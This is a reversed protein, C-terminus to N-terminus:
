AMSFVGAGPFSKCGPMVEPQLMFELSPLFNIQYFSPRGEPNFAKFFKCALLSCPAVLTCCLRHKCFFIWASM